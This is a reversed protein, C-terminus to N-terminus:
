GRAERRMKKIGKVMENHFRSLNKYYEIAGKITEIIIKVIAKTRLFRLKGNDRLILIIDVAMFVLCAAFLIMINRLTPVQCWIISIMKGLFTLM